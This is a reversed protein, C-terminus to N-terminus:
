GDALAGELIAVVEDHGGLRAWALADLGDSRQAPDAGARLLVEVIELHGQQAARILPTKGAKSHFDVDAGAGLLLEVVGIDGEYSAWLLPTWGLESARDVDAGADILLAVIETLGSRAAALLATWGDRDAADIEAGAAVVAAVIDENRSEVAALLPTAGTRTAANPDAGNELLLEVRALAGNEVAFMLATEGFGNAANVDAGAGELIGTGVPDHLARTWALARAADLGGAGKELLLSLVEPRNNRAAEGLGRGPDIGRDIAAAVSELDGERVARVFAEVDLASAELPPAEGSGGFAAAMLGRSASPDTWLNIPKSAFVLTLMVAWGVAAYLLWRSRGRAVSGFGEALMPVLLPLAPVLFRAPPSYGGWWEGSFAALCSLSLFVTSAFVVYGAVARRLGAAGSFAFAWFPAITLLGFDRDMLLGAFGRVAGAVVLAPGWRPVAPGANAASTWWSLLAYALASGLPIAAGPALARWGGPARRDTWLIWGIGLVSIAAYDGHLWPLLALPVFRVHSRPPERLQEGLFWVVLLAAPIEPFVLFSMTLLPPTLFAVITAATAAHGHPRLRKAIRLTLVATWAYLLVMALSLIDRFANARNWRLAQLFGDPLARAAAEAALYVPTLALPLGIHPPPYLSGNPGRRLPADDAPTYPREAAAAGYQNSLDLDFDHALSESIAVYHLADGRLSQPGRSIIVIAFIVIGIFLQRELKSM